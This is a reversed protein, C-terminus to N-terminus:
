RKKKTLMKNNKNKKRKKTYKWEVFEYSQKMRSIYTHVNHSYTCSLRFQIHACMVSSINYKVIAAM